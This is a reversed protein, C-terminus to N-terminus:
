RRFGLPLGTARAQQQPHICLYSANLFESFVPSHRGSFPPVELCGLLSHDNRKLQLGGTVTRSQHKKSPFCHCVSIELQLPVYNRATQIQLGTEPISSGLLNPTRALRDSTSDDVQSGAFKGPGATGTQNSETFVGQRHTSRYTYMNYTISLSAPTHACRHQYM